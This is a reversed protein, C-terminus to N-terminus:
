GSEESLREHIRKMAAKALHFEHTLDYNKAWDLDSEAPLEDLMPQIADRLATLTEQDADRCLRPLFEFFASRGGAELGAAVTVAAEIAESDHHNGLLEMLSNFHFGSKEREEPSMGALNVLWERIHPVAAPHRNYALAYFTPEDLPHGPLLEAYRTAPDEAQAAEAVATFRLITRRWQAKTDDPPGTELSVMDAVQWALEPTRKLFVGVCTGPAYQESFHRAGPPIEMCAYLKWDPSDRVTLEGKEVISRGRLVEEIDLRLEKRTAERETPRAFTAILIVKSSNESSFPAPAGGTEGDAGDPEELTLVLQNSRTRASVPAGTSKVSPRATEKPAQPQCGAMLIAAMLVGAGTEALRHFPNWQNM